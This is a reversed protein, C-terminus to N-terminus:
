NILSKKQRYTKKLRAIKKPAEVLDKKVSQVFSYTMDYDKMVQFETLVGADLLQVATLRVLQKSRQQTELIKSKLV